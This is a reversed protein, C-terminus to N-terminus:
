KEGESELLEIVAAITWYGDGLLRGLGGLRAGAIRSSEVAENRLETARKQLYFVMGAIDVGTGSCDPCDEREAGTGEPTQVIFYGGGSCPPCAILARLTAVVGSEFSRLNLAKNNPSAPLRQSAYGAWGAEVAADRAERIPDPM